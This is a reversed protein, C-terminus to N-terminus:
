LEVSNVIRKRLEKYGNKFHKLRRERILADKKSKYAEYYVLELPLWNRTSKVQGTKHELIRRKLNETFGIYFKGVKISKLVYVYFM